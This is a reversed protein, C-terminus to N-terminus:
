EWNLPFVIPRSDSPTLAVAAPRKNSCKPKRGWESLSLGCKRCYFQRKVSMTPEHRRLARRAKGACALCDADVAVHPILQAAAAAVRWLLPFSLMRRVLTPRRSLWNTIM